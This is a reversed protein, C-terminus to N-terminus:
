RATRARSVERDVQNPRDVTTSSTRRGPAMDDILTVLETLAEPSHGEVLHDVHALAATLGPALPRYGPTSALPHVWVLSHAIRRVRALQAPLERPDGREWGDSLVVVMSGRAM